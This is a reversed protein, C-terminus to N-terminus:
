NNSCIVTQLTLICVHDPTQHPSSCHWHDQTCPTTTHVPTYLHTCTHLTHSLRSTANYALTVRGVRRQSTAPTGTIETLGDKTEAAEWCTSLQGFTSSSHFCCCRLCSCFLDTLPLFHVLYLKLFELWLIHWDQNCCSSFIYWMDCIASDHFREPAGKM